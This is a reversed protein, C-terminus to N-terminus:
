SPANAGRNIHHLSGQRRMMLVMSTLFM